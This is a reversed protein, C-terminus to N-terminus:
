IVEKISYSGQTVQSNSLVSTYGEIYGLISLYEYKSDVTEDGIYLAVEGQLSRAKRKM